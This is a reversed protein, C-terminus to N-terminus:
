FEFLLDNVQIINAEFFERYFVPRKGILINKNNM